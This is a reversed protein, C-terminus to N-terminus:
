RPASPWDDADDDDDPGEPWYKDWLEGDAAYHTERRYFGPGRIIGHNRDSERIAKVWVEHYRPDQPPCPNEVYRKPMPGPPNCVILSPTKRRRAGEPSAFPNSGSDPDPAPAPLPQGTIFESEFRRVQRSLQERSNMLGRYDVTNVLGRAELTAAAAGVSELSAVARCHAAM